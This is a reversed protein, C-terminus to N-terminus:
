QEVLEVRRNKAWGEESKNSAAPATYGVGWPKLRNGAIGYDRTLAQTVAAARRKSLDINYDFGGQNDTHGVVLVKLGTNQKLLKAIEDLTPKSSPKISAKDTDFYIGYLAVRGEADIQQAMEDAEVVVVKSQRPKAQVVHVATMIKGKDPGGSNNRTM